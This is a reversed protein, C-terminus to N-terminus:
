LFEQPSVKFQKKFAASFNSVNTYGVKEGAQRVSYSGSRLLESALHMRKQQYYEYVPLGYVSKFLNKFKTTSMAAKRSLENISPPKLKFDKIMLKELEIITRVDDPKFKAEVDAMSVRTQIHNFFRELLLQVRNMIYLKPFPTDPDENIIENMLELYYSDLQQMTFSRSKLALYAPLIHDFLEVGLLKGLWEKPILINVGRVGTGPNARYSWDFLSSTLYAVSIQQNKKEVLDGAIDVSFANPITIDDFRLTYYEDGDGKRHFLWETLNKCNIINVYLGNPLKLYRIYGTGLNHPFFLWGDKVPVNMKKALGEILQEYNNYTYEFTFM